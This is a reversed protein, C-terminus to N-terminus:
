DVTLTFQFDHTLTASPVTSTVTGKVDLTYTGAPTGPMHVVQAGGGCASWLMVLVLCAGLLCATRRKKAAVLAGVSALGVLALLWFVRGLGTLNPPLVRGWPPALTPATTAVQVTVTTSATGNLTVSSPSLTCTSLSPAGSCALSVTQSLGGEPAVTLSYNATQGASVTQSPGSSSMQFDQGTGSLQVTQPSGPANDTITLTGTQAGASSPDFFVSITCGVGVAVSTTCGNTVGFQASTQINSISLPENGNNTLTINEPLGTTGVWQSPFSLSSPSLSAVPALGIGNLPLSQPSVTANDFFSLAATRTGAATPSFTVNVQCSANVALSSPCNQSLSFDGSNAGTISISNIALAQNGTNQVTVPYPNSSTGAQQTPFNISTVSFSPNPGNISYVATGSLYVSQSGTGANDTFVIAGFQGGGTTPQFSVNITCSTNGALSAPCNNSQPWQVPTEVSSISLIISGTYTVTVPQPASTTGVLQNAFTVSSASFNPAPVVGTGSLPVTHPSGAANDTVTVTGTRAGAETPTFTVDLTCKAEPAVSGGAYPCSTATTVLAFDGSATISSINLSANGLNTLTVSQQSSAAISGFNLAPASLSVAPAPGPSLKAVFGTGYIAKNSAQIPNVTPFDTSTTVGSLYANGSIDVAVAGSGDSKSGGLYTSYVLASGSANLEAVFANAANPAGLSAQIANAIPFDTSSTDGTVYANGFSDVAIGEGEDGGSGGLYTSYVLASGSASLKAVFATCPFEGVSKNSAQLPNVTPFDTSGTQGTVYASGSSDVAIGNGEDLGSGGLYTSYVLASGAANVEAVFGTWGPTAKNTAQIPNVTPFDTSQTLGTVYANGSPDLALASAWDTGSGGLYTSYILASGAANLKAVFANGTGKLDRQLPNVTPFDPSRTGGGLYANGSSDIAIGGPNDGGSGGLYTSYVLASGSANLKAVFDTGKTPSKNTAQMPNVTPFDTSNTGGVLYANGSSDVAIGAGSDGGSGGLYTSYVLASGEANLKSVFANWCPVGSGAVCPPSKLTAQLPNVTPFDASSTAGTVYANGSSDVAIRGAGDQYSGGLYTSYSLYPDIILPRTKDYGSLEFTVQNTATLHFRGQVLSSHRTVLSSGPEPQYVLPKHFHVASGEASIVLDGDPAIRLPAHGHAGVELTIAGPDAGPAVVFDYELQGGQNGYYELDIGPYVNKYRVRAYTPVNTRWKKPDNGIFYNAKGPLEDAGEVEARPNADVLRLRVVQNEIASKTRPGNDTTRQLQGGSQLGRLRGEQSRFGSDQIRASPKRLALVATDGTLFLTYGRERSLFKVQSATQGQNVEFSLPLKGYSAVLRPRVAGARASIRHEGAPSKPAELKGHFGFLVLALFSLCVGVWYIVIRKTASVPRAPVASGSIM